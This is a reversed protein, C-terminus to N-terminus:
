SWKRLAEEAIASTNQPGHETVFSTIFEAPIIDMQEGLQTDKFDPAMKSLTTRMGLEKVCKSTEAAVLVRKDNANAVSCCVQTALSALIGGSALLAAAGTLVVTRAAPFNQMTNSLRPPACRMIQAVSVLDILQLGLEHQELYHILDERKKQVAGSLHPEHIFFVQFEVDSDVANRLMADVVSSYSPVIITCGSTTMRRGYSAIRTRAKLFRQVYAEAADHIVKKTDANSQDPNAAGGVGAPPKAYTTVLQTQFADTGASAALAQDPSLSSKLEKSLSAILAITESSTTLPQQSENM